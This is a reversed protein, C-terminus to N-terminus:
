IHSKYIDILDCKQRAISVSDLANHDVMHWDNNNDHFSALSQPDVVSNTIIITQHDTLHTLSQQQQHQPINHLQMQVSQHQQQHQQQHHQQQEQGANSMQNQQQQQQQQMVSGTASATLDNDKNDTSGFGSDDYTYEPKVFGPFGNGLMSEFDLAPSSQEPTQDIRLWPENGNLVTLTYIQQGLCM